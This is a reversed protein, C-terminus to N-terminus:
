YRLKIQYTINEAEFRIFSVIGTYQTIKLPTNLQIFDDQKDDRARSAIPNISDTKSVGITDVGLLTLPAAYQANVETILKIHEIDLKGKMGEPTHMHWATAATISGMSAFPNSIIVFVFFNPSIRSDTYVHYIDGILMQEYVNGQTNFQLFGEYKGFVFTGVYESTGKPPVAQQALKYGGQRDFEGFLAYAYDVRLGIPAANKNIINGDVDTFFRSITVSMHALRRDRNVVPM